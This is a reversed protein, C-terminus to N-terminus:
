REVISQMNVLKWEGNYYAFYMKEKMTDQLKKNGKTIIMNKELYVECSFANENYIKFNSVKTNTFTPNDLKHNSIFSIDINTAWNYAYNWIDSNKILYNSIKYFGHLKGGLDDTLYLSWDKAIKIIDLNGKIKKMATKEDQIEEFELPVKFTNNEKIYQIENENEDQIKIKPEKLLNPIIYKVMHPIDVYKSIQELGEDISQQAKENDTLKINNVYVDFNSPVEINCEYIGTEKKLNIKELKWNQFTLLGLKTTKDEGNLQISFILENNAYVDYIPNNLDTSESNLKYTINSNELLNSIGEDITTKKNEFDSVEIEATNIYKSIKGKKGTEIIKQTVNDLYNNIQLNEYKILINIVYALFVVMLIFLIIIYNKLFKKFNFGKKNSIKYTEM